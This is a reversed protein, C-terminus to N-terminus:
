GNKLIIDDKGLIQLDFNQQLEGAENSAICTYRATDTEQARKIELNRGDSLLTMHDNLVLNEGNRLWTVKPPPVGSVPCELLVTRNVVVKPKDVVNADDLSPPVPFVFSSLFHMSTKM